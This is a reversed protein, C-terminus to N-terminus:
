DDGGPHEYIADESECEHEVTCEEDDCWISPTTYGTGPMVYVRGGCEDCTISSVM